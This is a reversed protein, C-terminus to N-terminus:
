SQTQVPVNLHGTTFRAALVMAGGCRPLDNRYCLGRHDERIMGSVESLNMPLDMTRTPLPIDGVSLVVDHQM